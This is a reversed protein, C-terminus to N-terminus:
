RSVNSLLLLVNHLLDTFDNVFPIVFLGIFSRRNRLFRFRLNFTSETLELNDSYFYVFNFSTQFLVTLSFLQEEHAVAIRFLQVALFFFV